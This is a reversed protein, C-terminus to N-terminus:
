GGKIGWKSWPARNRAGLTRTGKHQRLHVGHSCLTRCTSCPGPSSGPGRSETCHFSALCGPLAPQAAPSPSASTSQLGCATLVPCEPMGRDKTLQLVDRGLTPSLQASLTRVTALLAQISDLSTPLCEPFTVEPQLYLFHGLTPIPHLRSSQCLLFLRYSPERRLPLGNFGYVGRLVDPNHPSFKWLIVKGHPSRSFGEPSPEPSSDRIRPGHRPCSHLPPLMRPAWPSTRHAPCM